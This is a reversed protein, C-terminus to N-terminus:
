ETGVEFLCGGASGEGLGVLYEQRNLRVFDVEVEALCAGGLAMLDLYIM